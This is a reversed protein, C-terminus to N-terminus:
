WLIYFNPTSDEPFASPMPRTRAPQSSLCTNSMDAAISPRAPARVTPELLIVQWTKGCHNVLFSSIVLPPRPPLLTQNGLSHRFSRLNHPRPSRPVLPFPSDPSSSYHHVPSTRTKGPTDRADAAYSFLYNSQQLVECVSLSNTERRARRNKKFIHKQGKEDNRTKEKKGRGRVCVFYM